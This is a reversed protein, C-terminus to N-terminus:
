KWKSKMWYCHIFREALIIHVYKLHWQWVGYLPREDIARNKLACFHHHWWISVNGANSARQTPFEGTVPSNGVYLASARLKSTEKWRRRFLRDLCDYPQHNSVDDHENHRWQLSCIAMHFCSLSVAHNHLTVEPILWVTKLNEVSYFSQVLHYPTLQNKESTYM